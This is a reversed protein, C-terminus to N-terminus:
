YINGYGDTKLLWIDSSGFGAIGTLNGNNPSNSFGAVMLSGNSLQLLSAFSEDNSGGYLKQWIINGSPNCKILWADSLGFGPTGNLTGSLASAASVSGALITEGNSLSLLNNIADNDGGGWLKQWFQTGNNDTKFVWGDQLGNNNIGALTGSNGSNSNGGFIYENASASQMVNIVDNGSGGFLKQWQTNGAADTKVIWGDTGGNNITSGLTGTGSLSSSGGSAIFGGDNAPQISYFYDTVNGGFLKQWQTNGTADTKMIWGDASGNNTLGTLTGNSSYSSGAIMFGADATQFVSYFYDNGNGGYLKQWQVNGNADLKILWADVGGNNSIGTLTGTNNSQTSGALIYGGDSTPQVTYLQDFTGTGGFLKQWQMNGGIDLKIVFGDQSGYNTSGYFTGSNNSTTYGSIIYGGDTTLQIQRPTETGTGGYMKKLGAQNNNLESWSNNAFIELSQTTINFIILGMVPNVIANRQTTTMRPPLLGKTTSGIDLIASPDAQTGSNNISVNQAFLENTFFFLVLFITKM